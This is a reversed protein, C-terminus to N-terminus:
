TVIRTPAFSTQVLEKDVIVLTLPKLAWNAEIIVMRM